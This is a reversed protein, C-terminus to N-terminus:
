KKRPPSRPSALSDTILSGRPQRSRAVLFIGLAVAAVLALVGTLVLLRYGNDTAPQAPVPQNGVKAAPPTPPNTVSAAVSGNTVSAPSVNTAAAVPPVIAEIKPPPPPLAALNTGSNTGVVFLPATDLLPKKKEPEVVANTVAPVLKAEVVDEPFAPLNLDGPPFNMSCGFYKGDQVRLLVVFPQNNKKREAYGAKLAHNIADNYPTWIIEGQGECFILITLRRSGAVVEGLLPELANFNVEGKFSRKNLFATLNSATNVANEPQWARLPFEGVHLKQDFTWVGLSDGAHMQGAVSGYFIKQLEDNVAPMRKKMAATNEFVFLWRDQARATGAVSLALAFAIFFNKTLRNM